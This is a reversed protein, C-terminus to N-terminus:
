GLASVVRDVSLTAMDNVRIVTVQGPRMGLPATLGPDSESSFLAVCRAGMAAALHMPGTDNGIALSARAALGALDPLSTKGTLDLAEPCAERIVHALPADDTSGVIVPLVGRDALVSAVRGFGQAAWRKGPRHPAAGPVILAYDDEIMPGRAALWNLDPSPVDPLGAMRLQDRQRTRTHMENRFPNAHLLSAGRAIGSWPPRGALPYYWSSRNSTQLDYVQDFGRLAVRLRDMGRRDFLKPRTDIEIADFWPSAAALELFPRTSLLTIAADPHHARIAAFAPFAQVFDGLAGLKIVLIRAPASACQVATVM